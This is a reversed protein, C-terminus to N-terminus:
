LNPPADLHDPPHHSRCARPAGLGVLVLLVHGMADCVNKHHRKLDSTNVVM